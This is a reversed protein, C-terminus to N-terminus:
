PRSGSRAAPKKSLPLLSWYVSYQHHHSPLSLDGLLYSCSRYAPSL